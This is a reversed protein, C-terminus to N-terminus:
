DHNKVEITFGGTEGADDSNHWAGNKIPPPQSAKLAPAAWAAGAPCSCQYSFVMCPRLDPIYGRGNCRPCVTTPNQEVM